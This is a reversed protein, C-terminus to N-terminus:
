NRYAPGYISMIQRFSQVQDPNIRAFLELPLPCKSESQKFCKAVIREGAAAANRAEENSQRTAYKQENM